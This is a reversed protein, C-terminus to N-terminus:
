RDLKAKLMHIDMEHRTLVGAHEHLTGRIGTEHTGVEQELRRIREDHRAVKLSIALYAAIGSGLVTLSIQIWQDM